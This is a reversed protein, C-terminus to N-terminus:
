EPPLPRSGVFWACIALIPAQVALVWNPAQFAVSVMLVAAMSGIALIKAPRSIAGHERWELILGGFIRHNILWDHLRQSSNMFAFAAVLIFPTTPLLPLFVGIAGLALAVLGVLLWLIRTTLPGNPTTAM